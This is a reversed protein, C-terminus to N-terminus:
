EYCSIGRARQWEGVTVDSDWSSGSGLGRRSTLCKNKKISLKEGGNLSKM